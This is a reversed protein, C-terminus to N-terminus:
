QFAIVVANAAVGGCKVIVSVQGAGAFSRPLEVAVQDLGPYQGQPGAYIVPLDLGGIRVSANAGRVGTGYLELFVRESAPGFGIPAPVFANQAADFQAAFEYIQSGDPKARVIQAAAVGYGASNATFVAPGTAALQLSGSAVQSGGRMVAIATRGPVLPEPIQINLQGASVFLLGAPLSAGSADTVQVTVDALALPYPVGPAGATQDTFGSGYLTVLSGPTGRAVSISAASLATLFGGGAHGQLTKIQPRDVTFNAAPQVSLSYTGWWEGAAWYAGDMGAADLADFFNDLVVAWRADSNPIGFEDVVGRVQNARCWDIFHAVRTRGVNALDSNRAYEADYSSAYTGSEDRDFYQHAEYAFNNAPDQIWSVPGHTTVWRNGSSWSDGPILVLKDDQGARIADLVTQSIAKWNGAGMDHPENMLDYAYVSHEFKFENSLRVWLDALDASSVKATGDPGLNDIVYTKLSGGENMSYRAFNHIDIIVEGGHAKTWAIDRKLNALYASDLPGRLVPQIREWLLPIRMLPLKKESFYQFTRESNFTYDKGLVGPISSGGFEAGAV